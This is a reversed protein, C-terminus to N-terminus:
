KHEMIVELFKKTGPQACHYAIISPYHGGLVSEAGKNALSTSFVFIQSQQQMYQFNIFIYHHYKRALIISNSVEMSNSQKNVVNSPLPQIREPSQQNMMRCSGGSGPGGGANMQVFNNNLSNDTSMENANDESKINLMGGPGLKLNSSGGSLEDSNLM